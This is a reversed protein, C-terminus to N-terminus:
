MKIFKKTTLSREGEKINIFYIGPPISRININTQLGTVTSTLIEAGIVNYISFTTNTKVNRIGSLLITESAPNPSIQIGITPHNEVTGLINSGLKAIFFEDGGVRTLAISGFILSTSFFNGTIFCNGNVDVDIGNAADTINGTVKLAWLSNGSADYKATFIDSYLSTNMLTTSGFTVSPSIFYGTIYSNGNADATIGYGSEDNPGGASNAWVANGNVDYKVVFIDKGGANTLILTGFTISDSGFYGTAYSNGAADVAVDFGTDYNNGDAKKAWIVNGSSDFKSIFFDWDNNTNILTDSGFIISPSQSQGTLYSNGNADVDIGYAGDDAVGGISKAWLVNGSADYKAIFIDRVGANTFFFNGGYIFGPIGYLGAIYSNGSADVGVTMGWEEGPGGAKKAWLANGSSDYKAIFIDNAGANFLLSTGFSVSTSQFYGTIYCNGNADVAVGRGYDDATGGASRAWLVNGSSDYKVIFIDASIFGANTLTISGFTVTSSLFCGVAYSNSNADVAVDFGNEDSNPGSAMKAWQWGPAQSLGNLSFIITAFLVLAKKM